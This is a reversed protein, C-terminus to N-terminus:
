SRERLVQGTVTLLVQVQAELGALRDDLRNLRRALSRSREAFLPRSM